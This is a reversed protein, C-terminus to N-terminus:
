TEHCRSYAASSSYFVEEDRVKNRWDESDIKFEFRCEEKPCSRDLYGDEDSPFDVSVRMGDLREIERLLEAFM